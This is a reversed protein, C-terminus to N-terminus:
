TLCQVMGVRKVRLALSECVTVVQLFLGRTRRGEEDEAEEMPHRLGWRPGAGQAAGHTLTLAAETERVPLTGM